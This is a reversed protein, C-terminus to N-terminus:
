QVAERPMLRAVALGMALLLFTCGFYFAPGIGHAALKFFAHGAIPASRTVFWGVTSLWSRATVVMPLASLLAVLVAAIIPILPFSLRPARAFAAGLEASLLAAQGVSRSCRECHSFHSMAELPLISEQGDALAFRAIESLHGADDWVIEHELKEEHIM